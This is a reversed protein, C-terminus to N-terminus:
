VPCNNYASTKSYNRPELNDSKRLRGLLGKSPQSGELPPPMGMEDFTKPGRSVSVARQPAATVHVKPINQALRGDASITRARSLEQTSQESRLGIGRSQARESSILRRLDMLQADKIDIMHKYRDLSGQLDRSRRQEYDIVAERDQCAKVYEDFRAARETLQTDKQALLAGYKSALTNLRHDNQIHLQQIETELSALEATLHNIQVGSMELQKEYQARIDWQQQSSTHYTDEKFNGSITETCRSCIMNPRSSGLDTAPSEVGVMHPGPHISQVLETNTGPVLMPSNRLTSSTYLESAPTLDNLSDAVGKLSTCSQVLSQTCSRSQTIFLKLVQQGNSQKTLNTLQDRLNILELGINDIKATDRQIDGLVNLKNDIRGTTAEINDTQQILTVINENQAIMHKRQSALMSITNVTLAVELAMKNAELSSRLKNMEQQELLAWQVRRNMRCSSLKVLLKRMEDFVLEINVLINNISNRMDQPYAIHRQQEDDRLAELCLQLSMLERTVADMDKRASRVETVFLSIRMLLTSIGATLSVAGCAISIPDM